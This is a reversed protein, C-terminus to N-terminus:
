LKAESLQTHSKGIVFIGLLHSKVELSDEVEVEEEQHQDLVEEVGGM